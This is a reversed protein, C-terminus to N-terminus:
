SISKLYSNIMDEAEALFCEGIQEGNVWIVTRIDHRSSGHDLLEATKKCNLLCDITSTYGNTDEFVHMARAKLAKELSSYQSSRYIKVSCDNLATTRINNM